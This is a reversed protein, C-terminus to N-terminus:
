PRWTTKDAFTVETIKFKVSRTDDNVQYNDWYSSHPNLDNNFYYYDYPSKLRDGRNNYQLIDFTVYIIKKNSHNTFKVGVEWSALDDFDDDWDEKITLPNVVTVACKLTKGGEIKATITATGTKVAKISAASSDSKTIKVVGDDSTSWTVKRKLAGTLMIKDSDITSITLKEASLAAPDTVTLKCTLEKGNKIQAKITCKGEKIATVKGDKVTAVSTNSSTWTVKRGALGTITLTHTSGMQLSLTTESLAAPDTVTLKCTYTKGNKVKATITCKGAKKPTIKGNNVTAIATNSSTWTVKRKLLGDITLTHTSGIQLSLTTESLVAPDTVTLKCTLKKGNKIQATITCKGMYVATVVGDKVTAVKRDSSTWTVKRGALKDITLKHTEGAKLSLSTESLKATDTVTLKCSLSKGGVKATITCKGGGTPTVKGNNVTAVNTNSSSWVITRGATYIVVLRLTEGIDLSANTIPKCEKEYYESKSSYDYYWDYDESESDYEYLGARDTVSVACELKKGNEVKATITCKGGGTATVTGDKVTAVDENSSSWTVTRGALNSVTLKATKGANLTLSTKSLEAGDKVTLKCTLTRAELYQSKSLKATITCKGAKKPTIKGNKVTAVATDSSTWTVTRNLLGTVKLKYTEGMNLTLTKDSIEAPDYVTVNCKLTKGSELTASIVCKGVKKATVKGGEVTAISQNSSSWAANNVKKGADYVVLKHTNGSILEMSKESLGDKIIDYDYDNEEAWEIADSGSIIHFTPHSGYFADYGDDDYEITIKRALITVSTLDDCWKFAREGISTVSNPITVSTLSKCYYFAYEGISTVSDPITVSTLSICYYFANYGIHTLGNSFTVQKLNTCSFFAGVFEDVDFDDYGDCIETVSGPITVSTLSKNKYFAENGIKKVGDPIVVDGGDGRYKVLVGNKIEFDSDSDNSQVSGDGQAEAGDILLNDEIGIELEPNSLDVGDLQLGEDLALGGDPENAGSEPDIELEISGPNAPANIELEVNMEAVTTCAGCLMLAALLAALIRNFRKMPCDEESLNNRNVTYRM